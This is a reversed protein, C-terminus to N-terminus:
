KGAKVREWERKFVNQSITVLELQLKGFQELGDKEGTFAIRMMKGVLGILQLHDNEKPNILLEIQYRLHALRTVTSRIYDERETTLEPSVSTFLALKSASAQFEAVCDRLRDIWAQRSATVVNAHIQKTAIKYTIFAGLGSVVLASLAGIIAATAEITM